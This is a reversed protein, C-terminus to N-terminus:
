NLLLMCNYTVTNPFVLRNALFVFIKKNSQQRKHRAFIGGDLNSALGISRRPTFCAEKEKNVNADKLAFAYKQAYAIISKRASRNTKRFVTVYLSVALEVVIFNFSSHQNNVKVLNSVPINSQTTCSALWDCLHQTCTVTTTFLKCNHASLTLM